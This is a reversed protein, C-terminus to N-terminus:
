FSEPDLCNYDIQNEVALNKEQSVLNSLAELDFHLLPQIDGPGQRQAEALHLQLFSIQRVLLSISQFATDVPLGDPHKLLDKLHQTQLSEKESDKMDCWKSLLILASTLDTIFEEQTTLHQPKFPPTLKQYKGKRAEFRALRWSQRNIMSETAKLQSVLKWSPHNIDNLADDRDLLADELQDKLDSVEGEM